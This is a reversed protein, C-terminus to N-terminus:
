VERNLRWAGFELWDATGVTLDLAIAVNSVFNNIFPSEHFHGSVILTGLNRYM